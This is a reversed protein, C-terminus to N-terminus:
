KLGKFQANREEIAEATRPVLMDLNGVADAQVGEIYSRFSRNYDEFAAAPDERHKALSDALAAAGHLALSGGMGAAPSACYGADGVLVVRGKSWSPMRVQCLKDFYFSKSQAIKQLLEPTRWGEGAFHEQIIGRQQKENRYDYPIEKDSAFMLVIDTKNKYTGLIAAKGPANFMQLTDRDALLEDVITISSYHGLFHVYESEHGFWIRRVASHIGDCGFVWDFSRQAGNAFTVAVANPTEQMATIGTNFVFEADDKVLDFLLKLLVDREIEFEDEPPAEGDGGMSAQTVDDADKFVSSKPNLRGAKIAEYLGMRKVVDITPGKIDVATGGRKLGDNIEVVTVKYGLKILWYAASLGAFSAGSVLVQKNANM